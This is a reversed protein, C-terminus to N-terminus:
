ILNARLNFPVMHETTHKHQYVPEVSTASKYKAADDYADNISAYAKKFKKGVFLKYGIVRPFQSKTNM